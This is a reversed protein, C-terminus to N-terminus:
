SGCYWLRCFILESDTVEIHDTVRRSLAVFDKKYTFSLDESGNSIVMNNINTAELEVMPVKQFYSDGNGPKLGLSEFEAKIYEITITEGETFPKRGMFEDSSLNKIHYTLGEADILAHEEEQPSCALGLLLSSLLLTNLTKM